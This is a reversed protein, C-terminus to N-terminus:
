AKPEVLISRVSPQIAYQQGCQLQLKSGMVHAAEERYLWRSLKSGSPPPAYGESMPHTADHRKRNREHAAICIAQHNM